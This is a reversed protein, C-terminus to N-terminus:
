LTVDWLAETANRQKQHKYCRNYNRHEEGTHTYKQEEGGYVSKKEQNNQLNEEGSSLQLCVKKWWAGAELKVVINAQSAEYVSM